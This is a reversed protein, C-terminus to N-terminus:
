EVVECDEKTLSIYMGWHNRQWFLAADGRNADLLARVFDDRLIIYGEGEHPVMGENHPPYRDTMAKSAVPVEIGVNYDNMYSLAFRLSTPPATIRVRQQM